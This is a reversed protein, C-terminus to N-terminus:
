LVGAPLVAQHVAVRASSTKEFANKKRVEIQDKKGKDALVRVRLACVHCIAHNCRGVASVRMPEDCIMCTPVDLSLSGLGGLVPARETSPQQLEM